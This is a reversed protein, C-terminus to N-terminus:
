RFAALMAEPRNSCIKDVGMRMFHMATWAADLTWIMVRIGDAHARALIDPNVTHWACHIWAFGHARAPGLIEPGKGLLALPIEPCAEKMTLLAPLDFSSVVHSVGDAVPHEVLMRALKAAHGAGSRFAKVEVNVHLDEAAAFRLVDELMPVPEGRFEVGKWLGADLERISAATFESIPGNGSTTRDVSSDHMVVFEGDATVHVDLEIWSVGLAAASRFAAMTNEPFRGSDGRHAEVLPSVGAGPGNFM